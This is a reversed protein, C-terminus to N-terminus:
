RALIIPGAGDGGDRHAALHGVHEGDDDHAQGHSGRDGDAPRHSRPISLPGLLGNAVGDGDKGDKRHPGRHNQHQRYVADEGKQRGGGLGKGLGPAIQDDAKHADGEDGGIVDDAGDEPAQPIGFAGHVEHAAAPTM